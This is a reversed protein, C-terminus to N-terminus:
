AVTEAKNSKKKPTFILLAVAGGILVLGGITFMITGAGGTMPLDFGRENPVIIEFTYDGEVDNGVVIQLARTIRRYGDPAQVEYLYWTGAPIGYVYAIGENCTPGLIAVPVAGSVPLGNVIDEPCYLHFIAGALVTDTDVVDVKLIYVAYVTISPSDNEGIEADRDNGFELEGDNYITGLDDEDEITALTSFSVYFMGTDSTQRLAYIWAAGDENILFRVIEIEPPGAYDEVTVTFYASPMVVRDGDVLVFVEASDVVYSLRPDLRDTIRIIVDDHGGVCAEYLPCDCDVPRLTDMEEVIEVGFYWNLILEMIHCDCPDTCECEAPVFEFGDDGKVFDIDDHPTKTYAHVHDLWGYELDCDCETAEDDCECHGAWLFPLTVLFPPHLETLDLNPNLTADIASNIALFIGSDQTTFTAAGTSGTTITDVHVIDASPMAAVAAAAAGSAPNLFAADSAVRYIRWEAGQVAQGMPSPTPNGSPDGPTVDGTRQVRHNITLAYGDSGNLGPVVIPDGNDAFAVTAMSLVMTLAILLALAKQIRQKM